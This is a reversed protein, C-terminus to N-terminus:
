GPSIKGQAQLAFAIDFYLHLCHWRFESPSVLPMAGRKKMQVAYLQALTGGAGCVLSMFRRYGVSEVMM